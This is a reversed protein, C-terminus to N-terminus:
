SREERVAYELALASLWLILAYAAMGPAYFSAWFCFFAVSGCVLSLLHTGIRAMDSALPNM